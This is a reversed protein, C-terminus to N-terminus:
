NALYRELQALDDKAARSWGPVDRSVVTMETKGFDVPESAGHMDTIEDAKHLPLGEKPVDAAARGKSFTHASSASSVTLLVLLAILWAKQSTLRQRICTCASRM